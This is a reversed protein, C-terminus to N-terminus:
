PQVQLAEIVSQRSTEAVATWTDGAGYYVLLRDDHEIVGTPFVVDPV